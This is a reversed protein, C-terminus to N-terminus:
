KVLQYKKGPLSKVLGAFELNLLLSVATNVAIQTKWSLEDLHLGEKFETLIQLLAQEENSFQSLDIRIEQQKERGKDWNLLYELDSIGTYINARQSKILWNCGESFKNKLDGPVAFVERDYSYAINATILAGGKAAAEVVIVADAMGAIIRNRAPFYHAEPQIGIEKESYLSGTELMEIATKRHVSPYIKDLGGALVGVTPLGFELAAKHAAIDIGYALGSVILADHAVLDNVIERTMEKGYNTANRTGVIAVVKRTTQETVGKVFLVLPSDNAWKLKEPYKDAYYPIVSVEHKECQKIQEEAAKLCQKGSILEVTKEGINPIKLLKGKSENFIAQTSGCYSILQKALVDGINPISRLALLYLTEESM